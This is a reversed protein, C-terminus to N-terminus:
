KDEVVEDLTAMQKQAYAIAAKYRKKDKKITYANSLTDCDSQAQYDEDSMDSNYM